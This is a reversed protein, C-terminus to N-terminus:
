RRYLTGRTRQVSGAFYADETYEMSNGHQQWSIVVRHAPFPYRESWSGDQPNDLTFSTSGDERSWGVVQSGRWLNGNTVYFPKPAWRAQPGGCNTDISHITLQDDFHSMDLELDCGYGNQNDSQSYLRGSWVGSDEIVVCGSLSACVGLALFSKFLTKM